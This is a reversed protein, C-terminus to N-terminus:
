PRVLEDPDDPRDRGATARSPSPSAMGPIPVGPDAMGPDAIGPDAM